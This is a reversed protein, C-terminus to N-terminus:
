NGGSERRDAFHGYYPVHLGWKRRAPLLKRMGDTLFRAVRYADNPPCAGVVPCDPRQATFSEFREFAAEYDPHNIAYLIIDFQESSQIHESFVEPDTTATVVNEDVGLYMKLLELQSEDDWSVLIRMLVTGIDIVSAGDIAKSSRVGGREWKTVKVPFERFYLSRLNTGVREIIIFTSSDAYRPVVCLRKAVAPSTKSQWLWHPQM